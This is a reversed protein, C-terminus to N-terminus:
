RKSRRWGAAQAEAESCFWREGKSESIKTEDYWKGGPLHYIREGSSSINGKIVCSGAQLAQAPAPAQQGQGQARWDWPPVFTGAWMGRRATRAADEQGIYTTSYRRYALALGEKVIWAGLDEGRAKCVALLRGYRDRENGECTVTAADIRDALALAARQGCRWSQGTANLCAQDSEPADIGILRVRQGHIELTDGDIVSARGVLASNSVAGSSQQPSQTTSSPLEVDIRSAGDPQGWLSWAAFLAAGGILALKIERANPLLGSLTRRPTRRRGGSAWPPPASRRKGRM